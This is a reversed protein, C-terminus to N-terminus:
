RVLAILPKECNILSKAFIFFGSKRKPKESSDSVPIEPKAQQVNASGPKKPYPSSLDMGSTFYDKTGTLVVINTKEDDNSELLAQTMAFAMKFNVANKKEPRNFTISRVGNEVKIIIEESSDSQDNKNTSGETSYYRTGVNSRFGYNINTSLKASDNILSIIPPQLRSVSRTRICVVLRGLIM